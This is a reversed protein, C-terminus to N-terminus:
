FLIDIVIVKMRRVDVEFLKEKGIGVGIESLTNEPSLRGDKEIENESADGSLRELPDLSNWLAECENSELDTLAVWKNADSSPALVPTPLLELHSTSIFPRFWRIPKLTEKDEFVVDTVM